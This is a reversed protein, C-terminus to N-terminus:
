NKRKEYDKISMQKIIKDTIFFHVESICTDEYKSDISDVELIEIEVVGFESVLMNQLYIYNLNVSYIEPLIRGTSDKPITLTVSGILENGEIPHTLISVKIKSIRNNKFWKKESRMYGPIFSIVDPPAISNKFIFRIKENIGNGKIGEVWATKPNQDILHEKKYRNSTHALTSSVSISSPYLPKPKYIEYFAGNFVEIEDIPGIKAKIFFDQATLTFSVLISYIAIVTFFICKTKM